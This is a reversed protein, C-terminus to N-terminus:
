KYQDKYPLPNVPQNYGKIGNYLSGTGYGIQRTSNILNQAFSNTFNLGGHQRRYKRSSKLKNTYNHGKLRRNTKSKNSRRVRKKNSKKNQKKNKIKYKGGGTFALNNNTNRNLLVSGPYALTGGKMCGKQIRRKTSM